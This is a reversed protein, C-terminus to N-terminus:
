QIVGDEDKLEGFASIFSGLFMAMVAAIKGFGFKVLAKLFRNALAQREENKVGRSKNRKNNMVLWKIYNDVGNVRDKRVARSLKRRHNVKEYSYLKVKYNEKLNIKQLDKKKFGLEKRNDVIYTGTVTVGKHRREWSEPLMAAIRRIELKTAM